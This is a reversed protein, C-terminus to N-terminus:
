GYYLFHTSVCRELHPFLILANICRTLLNQCLYLEFDYNLPRLNEWLALAVEKEMETTRCWVWGLINNGCEWLLWNKLADFTNFTKHLSIGDLTKLYIQRKMWVIRICKVADQVFFDKSVLIEHCVFKVKLARFLTGSWINSGKEIM